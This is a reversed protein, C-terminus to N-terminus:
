LGSESCRRFYNLEKQVAVRFALLSCRCRSVPRDIQGPVSAHRKQIGNRAATPLADRAETVVWSPHRVQPPKSGNVEESGARREGLQSRYEM